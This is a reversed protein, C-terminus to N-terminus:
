PDVMAFTALNQYLAAAVKLTGFLLERLATVM